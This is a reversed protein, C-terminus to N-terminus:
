PQALRTFRRTSRPFDVGMAAGAALGFLAAVYFIKVDLWLVVGPAAGSPVTTLVAGLVFSVVALWQYIRLGWLVPTQPEGRYSEEVFRAVGALMLYAGAVIGLAAGLSWLRLLFVGIVVNALMSYLPTPHLPVGELGALDCVRSRKKWYRIGVTEEAERGHCRGQVLCRARGVAQVWPAAVAVAALLLM